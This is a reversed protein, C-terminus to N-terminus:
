VIREGAAVALDIEKLITHEGYKKGINRLELTEGM